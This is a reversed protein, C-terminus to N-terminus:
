WVTQHGSTLRSVGFVAVSYAIDSRSQNFKGISKLHSKVISQSSSYDKDPLALFIVQIWWSFYISVRKITIKKKISM